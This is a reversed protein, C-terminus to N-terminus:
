EAELILLNAKREVVLRRNELWPLGILIETIEYSALVPITLEQGDFIVRGQYLNFESEGRATKMERKKIYQWDLSECDQINM